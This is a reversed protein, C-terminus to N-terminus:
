VAVDLAEPTDERVTTVGTEVDYSMRIVRDFADHMGEVHTILIVQPFRDSLARLLSLVAARREEDLSGFIEDLVLLSLPQGAREAIMQSIALRMALNVIDEEGGSIVPKAEGDEVIMPVYSEDLELDDYRGASLEQLLRSANEQLDPRLQLNLETRLDSFARDLEELLNIEDGLARALEAKTARDARRALAAERLEEARELAAAAGAVAFQATQLALEADRVAAELQPSPPRM